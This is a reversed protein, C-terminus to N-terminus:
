LLRKGKNHFVVSVDELRDSIKNVLIRHHYMALLDYAFLYAAQINTRNSGRLSVDAGTPNNPNIGVTTTETIEAAAKEIPVRSYELKILPGAGNQGFQISLVHQLLTPTARVLQVLKTPSIPYVKNSLDVHMRAVIHSLCLPGVPTQLLALCTRAAAVTKTSFRVNGNPFCDVRVQQNRVPEMMISLISLSGRRTTSVARIGPFRASHTQANLRKAMELLDPHDIQSKFYADVVWWPGVKMTIHAPLVAIFEADRVPDFPM